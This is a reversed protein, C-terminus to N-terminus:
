SACIIVTIPTNETMATRAVITWKIELCMFCVANSVSLIKTKTVNTCIM